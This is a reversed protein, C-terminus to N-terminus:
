RITITNSRASEASTGVVNTATVSFSYAVKTTLGTLTVSTASASVTVAGVKSTGRYIHVTQATLPSGGDSARTWSVSASKKGATARVNTPASPASAVPTEPSTSPVHLLRNATNTSANVIANATANAKITQDVQAPTLTPQAGLILAAAGAIHPAAM